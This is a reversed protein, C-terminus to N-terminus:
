KFLSDTLSSLSNKQIKPTNESLKKAIEYNLDERKDFAENIFKDPDEMFTSFKTLSCYLQSDNYHCPTDELDKNRGIERNKFILEPLYHIHNRPVRVKCDCGVGSCTGDIYINDYLNDTAVALLGNPNSGWLSAQIESNIFPRQATEEGIIVLTVTSDKLYDDRIKRMISEEPLSTDIDGEHVSTDIFDEGGFKEIIQDKENQENEHHYSIFTKHKVM